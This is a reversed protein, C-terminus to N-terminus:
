LISNNESLESRSFYTNTILIVNFNGPKPAVTTTPKVDPTDGVIGIIGNISFKLEIWVQSLIRNLHVNTMKDTFEFHEM